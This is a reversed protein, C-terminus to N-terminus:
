PQDVEGALGALNEAGDLPRTLRRPAPFCHRAAARAAPQRRRRRPRPHRAQSVKKYIQAMNDCESYPFEHTELELVCLGFSYIDVKTDYSEEYLEPAM